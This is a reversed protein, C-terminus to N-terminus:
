KSFSWIVFLARNISFCDIWAAGIDSSISVVKSMDFPGSNSASNQRKECAIAIILTRVEHIQQQCKWIKVECGFCAFASSHYIRWYLVWSNLERRETKKRIPHKVCTQTFAMLQKKNDIVCHSVDSPLPASSLIRWEDNDCEATAVVCIFEEVPNKKKQSWM